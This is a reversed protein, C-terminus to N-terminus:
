PATDTESCFPYLVSDVCGNFRYRPFLESASPTVGVLLSPYRSSMSSSPHTPVDGGQTYCVTHTIKKATWKRSIYNTNYGYSPPTSLSVPLAGAASAAPRLADMLSLMACWPETVTVSLRCVASSGKPKPTPVFGLPWAPELAFATKTVVTCGPLGECKNNSTPSSTTAIDDFPTMRVAAVRNPSEPPPAPAPPPSLAKSAPAPSASTSVAVPFAASSSESSSSAGGGGGEALRFRLFGM